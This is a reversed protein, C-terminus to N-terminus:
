AQTGPPKKQWRMVIAEVRTVIRRAEEINGKEAIQRAEILRRSAADRQNGDIARSQLLAFIDADLKRTESFFEAQALTRKRGPETKV